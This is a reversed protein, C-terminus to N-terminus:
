GSHPCARTPADKGFCRLSKDRSADGADFVLASKTLDPGTEGGMADRGHCFGCQAAFVRQGAQVQEPSPQAPAQLLALAAAVPALSEAVNLLWNWMAASDVM